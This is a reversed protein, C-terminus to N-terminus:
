CSCAFRPRPVNDGPLPQGTVISWNKMFTSYENALDSMFLEDSGFGVLDDVLCQSGLCLLYEYTIVESSRDRNAFEVLWVKADPWTRQRDAEEYEGQEELWDAYDTRLATDDENEALKKLFAEQEDM